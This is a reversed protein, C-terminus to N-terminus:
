TKLASLPRYASIAICHIAVGFFFFKRRIYVEIECFNLLQRVPIQVVLYRRAPMNSTCTLNVTAGDAVVGPYQACVDYNWLTPASIAPSVDTLGVIFNNSRFGLVFWTVVTNTAPPRM